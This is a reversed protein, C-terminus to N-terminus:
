RMACTSRWRKRKMKAKRIPPRCGRLRRRARSFAIAKMDLARLGFYGREQTPLEAWHRNVSTDFSAGERSKWTLGTVDGDPVRAGWYLHTLVGDQVGIFYSYTRGQLHFVRNKEQYTIM